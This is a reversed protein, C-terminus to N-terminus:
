KAAFRKIIKQNQMIDLSKPCGFILDEKFNNMDRKIVTTARMRALTRPSNTMVALKELCEEQTNGPELHITGDYCYVVAFYKINPTKEM